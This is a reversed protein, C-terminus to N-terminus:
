ASIIGSFHGLKGTVMTDHRNADCEVRINRFTTSLM